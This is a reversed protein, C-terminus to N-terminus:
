EPEFVWFTTINMFALVRTYHMKLHWQQPNVSIVKITNKWIYLKWRDRCDCLNLINNQFLFTLFYPLKPWIMSTHFLVVNIKTSNTKLVIWEWEYLLQCCIPDTKVFLRSNKQVQLLVCTIIIVFIELVWLPPQSFCLCLVKRLKVDKCSM